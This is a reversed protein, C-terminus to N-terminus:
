NKNLKKLLEQLFNTQRDIIEINELVEVTMADDEQDSGAQERALTLTETLRRKYTDDLPQAESLRRYIISAKQYLGQDMYIQALTASDLSKSKVHSLQSAWSFVDELAVELFDDGCSAIVGECPDLNKSSRAFDTKEAVPNNDLSRENEKLLSLFISDLENKRPLVLSRGRAELSKLLSSRTPIWGNAKFERHHVQHKELWQEVVAHDKEAFYNILREDGSLLAAEFFCGKIKPFEQTFESSIKRLEEWALSVIGRELFLRSLEFRAGPYDIGQDLNKKLFLLADDFRKYKNLIEYADLLRAETASRLFANLVALDEDELPLESFFSSYEQQGAM